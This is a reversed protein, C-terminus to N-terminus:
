VQTWEMWTCMSGPPGRSHARSGMRAAEQHEKGLLSLQVQVPQSTQVTLQVKWFRQSTLMSSYGPDQHIGSGPGLQDLSAM